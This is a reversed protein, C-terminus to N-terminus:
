QIRNTTLFENKIKVTKFLQKNIIIQCSIDANYIGYASTYGVSSQLACQRSLNPQLPPDSYGQFFDMAKDMEENKSNNIFIGEMQTIEEIPQDSKNKWKMIVLPQYLVQNSNYNVYEYFGTEYEVLDLREIAPIIKKGSKDFDYERIKTGSEFVIEKLQIGNDKYEKRTGNEKNDKYETVAYLQGNDYYEKTTGNILGDSYPFENAVSGDPFYDIGTGVRKGQKVIRESGKYKKGTKPDLEYFAVKGTVVEGNEKFTYIKTNDDVNVKEGDIDSNLLNCSALLVTLGITKLFQKM